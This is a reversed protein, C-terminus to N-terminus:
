APKKSNKAFGKIVGHATKMSAKLLREGTERIKKSSYEEASNSRRAQGIQYIPRSPDHMQKFAERIKDDSKM